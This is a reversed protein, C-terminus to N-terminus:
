NSKSIEISVPGILGAELLPRGNLRYPANTHTFRKDEPLHHDGILRNRWTNVVEISLENKGQHLANTINV